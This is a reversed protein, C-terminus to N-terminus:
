TPGQVAPKSVDAQELKLVPTMGLLKQLVIEGPLEMLKGFEFKSKKLLKGKRRFKSYMNTSLLTNDETILKYKRFAAENNQLDALSMEFVYG